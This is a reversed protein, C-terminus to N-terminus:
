MASEYPLVEGVTIGLEDLSKTEDRNKWKLISYLENLRECRLFWGINGNTAPYEATAISNFVVPM